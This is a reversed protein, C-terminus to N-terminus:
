QITMAAFVDDATVNIMTKGKNIVLPVGDADTFAIESDKGAKSWNIEIVKGATIYYGKGSGVTDVTRHGYTDGTIEHSMNIVIINEFALQEGTLSDIHENHTHQWRYYKGSEADYEYEVVQTDARTNNYPIKIYEATNGSLEVKYGWEPTIIPNEFGSNHETRYGYLEIGKALLEGESVMTHESSMVKLREPDRYFISASHAGNVGDMNNIGRSSLAAYADESGGAHVYIADHSMAFDIYYPRSSRISGIKEITEYDAFLAMLRTIGGEALCEYVVDAQSIGVQPMAAKINNVMIGVPRRNSIDKSAALGSLPNIYEPQEGANEDAVFSFHSSQAALVEPAPTEEKEPETEVESYSELTNEPVPDAAKKTEEKKCSAACLIMAVVLMVIGIRKKINM